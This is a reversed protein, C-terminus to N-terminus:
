SSWQRRSATMGFALTLYAQFLAGKDDAEGLSIAGDDAKHSHGHPTDTRSMEYWVRRFYAAQGLQNPHYPGGDLYRTAISNIFPVHSCPQHGDFEKSVNVFKVQPGAASCARYIADNLPAVQARM